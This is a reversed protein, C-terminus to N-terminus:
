LKKEAWSVLLAAVQLAEEVARPDDPEREFMEALEERILHMWTPRGHVLEHGEYDRRFIEQIEVATPGDYGGATATWCVEPGFGDELEDNHGYRAVQRLREEFVMELVKITKAQWKERALM